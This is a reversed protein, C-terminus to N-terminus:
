AWKLILMAIEKDSTEVVEFAGMSYGWGYSGIETEVNGKPEMMFGTHM